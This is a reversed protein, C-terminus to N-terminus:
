APEAAQGPQSGRRPGAVGTTRGQGEGGLDVEGFERRGARFARQRLGAREREKEAGTGDYGHGFAVRFEGFRRHVQWWGIVLAAMRERSLWAAQAAMEKGEPGHLWDGDIQRLCEACGMALRPLIFGVFLHGFLDLAMGLRAVREERSVLIGAEPPVSDIVEGILEMGGEIYRPPRDRELSVTDSM